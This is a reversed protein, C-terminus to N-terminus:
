SKALRESNLLLYMQVTTACAAKVCILYTPHRVHAIAIPLAFQFVSGHPQNASAWIRGSHVGIVWRCIALGMGMGGTKSTILPEFLPEATHLDLGTGTDWVSVIVGYRPDACSNM